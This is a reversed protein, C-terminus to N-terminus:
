LLTKGAPKEEFICDKTDVHKYKLERQLIRQRTITFNGEM